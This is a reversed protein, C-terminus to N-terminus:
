EVLEAAESTDKGGHWMERMYNLDWQEQCEGAMAMMAIPIVLFISRIVILKHVRNERLEKISIPLILFCLIATAYIPNNVHTARPFAVLANHYAGPLAIFWPYYDLMWQSQFSFLTAVHHFFFARSCKETIVKAGFYHFKVLSDFSYYFAGATLYVKFLLDWKSGLLVRKKSKGNEDDNDESKKKNPKNQEYAKTYDWRFPSLGEMISSYKERVRYTHWTSLTPEGFLFRVLVFLMTPGLFICCLWEWLFLHYYFM